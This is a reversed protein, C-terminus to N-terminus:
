KRKIGKYIGYGVALAGVGVLIQTKRDTKLKDLFGQKKEDQSVQEITAIDTGTANAVVSTAIKEATETSVPQLDSANLTSKNATVGADKKFVVDTIPKGTLQKFTESGKKVADSLEKVNEPTDLGTKKIYDLAIKIVPTATAVATAVTVVEGVKQEPFAPDVTGSYGGFIEDYSANEEEVGFIRKKGAGANFANILQDRNGGIKFWWALAERGSKKYAKQLNTALGKYNLRVLGIFANRPVALSVTKAGQAVKKAVAPIQKVAKRVNQSTKAVAKKFNSRIKKFSLGNIEADTEPDFGSLQYLSMDIDKKKYPTKETDFSPLVADIVTNSKPLYSYVHGFGDGKYDAFRYVPKFGCAQLITNTFISYHKCDGYGDALFRKLTKVTQKQAPEVRYETNEKLFNFINRATKREDPDCFYKSIKRAEPMNLIHQRKIAEIIDSTNQWSSIVKARYNPTGLINALKSRM